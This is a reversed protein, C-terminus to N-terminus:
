GGSSFAVLRSVEEGGAILRELVVGIGPAYFKHELLEPQLPTTDETVLIRDFSGFPIEVAEGLRIVKGIDEAEGAYYEQRYTEGVQPEGLMAIGPQAGDVGAEWSGATSVVQGHRYEATEEGFYWVNGFRDQAFWDFTDEVIEGGAFVQDHVVTTTVGLIVKTRHTVVIVNRERQGESVAEYVRRSGPILPLYPNDIVAVFDSPDPVAPAYAAGEVVPAPNVPTSAADAPAGSPESGSTSGSACSSALLAVGAVLTRTRATM